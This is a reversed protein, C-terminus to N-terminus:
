LEDGCEKPSHLGQLGVRGARKLRNYQLYTSMLPLSSMHRDPTVHANACSHICSSTLITAALVGIDWPLVAVPRVLRPGGTASGRSGDFGRKGCPLLRHSCLNDAETPPPYLCVACSGAVSHVAGDRHLTEGQEGRNTSLSRFPLAEGTM